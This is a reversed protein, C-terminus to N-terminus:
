KVVTIRRVAAPEGDLTMRVFYTGAALQSVDVTLNYHGATLLESKLSKIKNGISEYLDFEVRGPMEIGYDFQTHSTCPNPYNRSLYALGKSQEKVSVDQYFPFEIYLEDGGEYFTRFPELDDSAPGEIYTGDADFITGHKSCIFVHLEQHLDYVEAGEHPCIVSVCTFHNNGYKHREEEPINTIIVTQYYGEMDLVDIRVSGWPDSLVPYESLKMLYRGLIQRGDSKLDPESRGIAVHPLAVTTITAALMKKLFSRRTENIMKM